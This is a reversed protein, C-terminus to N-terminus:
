VTAKGKNEDSKDWFTTILVVNKLETDGVLKRMLGMQRLSSGNMQNDIVRQLYFNNLRSSRKIM